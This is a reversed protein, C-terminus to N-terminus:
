ELKKDIASSVILSNFENKGTWLMFVKIQLWSSPVGIPVEDFSDADQITGAKIWKSVRAKFTGTAGTYTEDVTIIYTGAQDEIRTIHSCLGSGVGQIVDVEDGVAFSSNLPTSFTTTSIWTGTIETFQDEATRYKVIMKDDVSLFKEHIVWAKSWMDTVASSSGKTTIFSGSKKFTDNTDDYFIGYTTTTATLYYTCGALFTGNNTIPSQATIIESLAGAGFIRVQGYDTITNGSKTLGFSYKHRLTNNFEDYEWIGSPNCDEQTGNHSTDDYNTLDVLMNIKGKIVSMGNPHIFRQNTKNFPNFLQKNNKRYFGTLSKFTGGNWVLLEGNSDVVYPIDDKIVCSLAGSSKLRYSRTFTTDTGNWEYIFAKGGTTNVTGIWLRDSAARIWTITSGSPLTCAYTNTPSVVTHSSDGWSQIINGNKSVYMRDKFPFYCLMMSSGAAGASFNGWTSSSTTRYYVKAESAVSVYLEGFGIEIDSTLSDILTPYDVDSVNAFATDISTSSSPYGGTATSGAITYFLNNFYRFGVPYSFLAVEQGSVNLLLRESVRLSGKNDTFNCNRTAYLEGQTDSNNTQIFTEIKNPIRIM